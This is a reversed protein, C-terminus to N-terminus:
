CSLLNNVEKKSLYRWKGLPLNGLSLSAVRIRNLDVVENGVKRCLRRIQRNKGEKLIIRFKTKSLRKVKTPLTKEGFLKMGKSIRKLAGDSIYRKVKVEYEKEHEFKPHILRNAIVGDNTLLLLGTSDKDLRGVPYVREKINILDLVSTEGKVKCTTVVNKPKNLAIYIQKEKIEIVKKSIEIKDKGPDVKTGLITVVQGNVKILGKKIYEEGKRRSCIGARSLYKQLRMFKSNM